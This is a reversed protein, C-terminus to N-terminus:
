IVTCPIPGFTVKGTYHDFRMGMREHRPIERDTIKADFARPCDRLDVAPETPLTNEARAAAALALVAGAVMLVRIMNQAEEGVIKDFRPGFEM